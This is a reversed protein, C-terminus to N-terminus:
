DSLRSMMAANFRVITKDKYVMVEVAHTRALLHSASFRSTNAIVKAKIGHGIDV